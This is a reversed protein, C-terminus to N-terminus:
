ARSRKRLFIYVTGTSLFFGIILFMIPLSIAPVSPVVGYTSAIESADLSRSYFKVEDIKGNFFNTISAAGGDYNRSSGIYLASSVNTPNTLTSTSSLIKGDLYLELEGSNNRQYLLHYWKGSQLIPGSSTRLHTGMTPEYGVILENDNLFSYINSLDANDEGHFFLSQVGSLDNALFWLSVAYESSSLAPFSTLTLYGNTGDFSYASNPKEHRDTTLSIGGHITADHNGSAADNPNGNFPLYFELNTSLNAFSLTLTLIMLASLSIFKKM